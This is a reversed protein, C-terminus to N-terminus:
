IDLSYLGIAEDLEQQCKKQEELNRGLLYIYSNCYMNINWTYTM